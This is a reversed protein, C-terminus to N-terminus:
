DKRRADLEFRDVRSRGGGRDGEGGRPERDGLVARALIVEREWSPRIRDLRWSGRLRSIRGSRRESEASRTDLPCHRAPRSTTSLRRENTHSSRTRSSVASADRSDDLRPQTDDVIQLYTCVSTMM